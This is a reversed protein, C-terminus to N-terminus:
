TVGTDILANCKMHGVETSITADLSTGIPIEEVYTTPQEHQCANEKGPM